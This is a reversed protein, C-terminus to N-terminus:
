EVDIVVTSFHRQQELYEYAERVEAFGSVRDDVVPKIGLLSGRTTCLYTLGDMISPEHANESAGLLGTLAVLGDAKVARLSQSVTSHGGVDIVIDVGRNSPTLSKAVEGYNPTTRYDLVHHAGLSSLREVKLDSSTTVIVSAGTALAFQLTAVSVGGSGQVLVYKGELANKFERTRTNRLTGHAGHGLGAAIDTFTAPESSGIQLVEGAGDSSPTVPPDLPLGFKGKAIVLERYNLSAAHIRVLVDNPGLSPLEFDAVFKLSSVGKQGTLVWSPTTSITASM